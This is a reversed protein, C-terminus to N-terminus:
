MKKTDHAYEKTILNSSEITYSISKKPCASSISSGSLIKVKFINSKNSKLLLDLDVRAQFSTATGTIFICTLLTLSKLIIKNM